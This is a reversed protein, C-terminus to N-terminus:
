KYCIFNLKLRRYCYREYHQLVYQRLIYTWLFILHKAVKSERTKFVFKMAKICLKDLKQCVCTEACNYCTNTSFYLDLKCPAYPLTCTYVDNNKQECWSWWPRLWFSARQIPVQGTCYCPGTFAVLLSMKTTFSTNFFQATIKKKKM